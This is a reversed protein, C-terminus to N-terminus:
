KKTKRKKPLVDEVAVQCHGNLVTGEAIVLIPTKISGVVKAPKSIELRKSCVIDGKVKGFIIINEGKIIKAKIDAKEGIILTGKTELEGDFKGSIQLSVPSNFVLNGKMTAEINIIKGEIKEIKRNKRLM